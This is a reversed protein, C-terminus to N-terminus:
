EFIRLLSAREDLYKQCLSCKRKGTEIEGSSLPCANASAHDLLVELQERMVDHTDAAPTTKPNASMPLEEALRERQGAAWERASRKRFHASLDGIDLSFM